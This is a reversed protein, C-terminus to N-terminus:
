RLGGSCLDSIGRCAPHTHRRGRDQLDLIPPGKRPGKASSLSGPCRCISCSLSVPPMVKVITLDGPPGREKDPLSVREMELYESSSWMAPKISQKAFSIDEEVSKAEDFFVDFAIVTAGEKALMETLRAHLSRPWKRPDNPLHLYDSSAKDVAVIVVESPPQKVGRLKFLLHLGIDEELDIGLPFLTLILGLLGTLLGLIAAKLLREM